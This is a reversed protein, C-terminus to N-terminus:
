GQLVTIAGREGRDSKTKSIQRQLPLALENQAQCPQRSRPTETSRYAQVCALTTAHRRSGIRRCVSAHTHTCVMQRKAAWSQRQGGCLFACRQSSMTHPLRFALFTNRKGQGLLTTSRQRTILLRVVRKCHRSCMCCGVGGYGARFEYRAGLAVLVYPNLRTALDTAGLGRGECLAVVLIGIVAPEFSIQVQPEIPSNRVKVPLTM